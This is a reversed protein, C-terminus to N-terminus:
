GLQLRDHAGMGGGLGQDKTAPQDEPSRCRVARRIKLHGLVEVTVAMGNATPATAITRLAETAQLIRQAGTPRPAKGGETRRSTIDIAVRLGARYWQAAVRQLRSSKTAARTCPRMQVILRELIQRRRSSASRLGWRLTEQSLLWSGSKSVLACLM